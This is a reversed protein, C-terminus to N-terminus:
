HERVGEAPPPVLYATQVGVAILSLFGEYSSDEASHRQPGHAFIIVPASYAKSEAIDVSFLSALPHPPDNMRPLLALQDLMAPSGVYTVKRLM